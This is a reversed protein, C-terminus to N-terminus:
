MRQGGYGGQNSWMLLIQHVSEDHLQRDEEYKSGKQYLIRRLM